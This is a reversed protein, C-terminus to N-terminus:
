ENMSPNENKNRRDQQLLIMAEQVDFPDYAEPNNVIQRAVTLEEQEMIQPVTKREVAPATAAAGSVRRQEPKAKTQPSIEGEQILPEDGKRSTELGKKAPVELGGFRERKEPM